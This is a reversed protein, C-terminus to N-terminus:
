PNVCIAYVTFSEATTGTNEVTAGWGAQGANGTGSGDSPYSENVFQDTGSTHVGGGVVKTGAGCPVDGFNVGDPVGYMGAAPNAFTTAPYSLGLVAAPGQSGQPGVPGTAGQPGSPGQPGTAGTPGQPGIPGATGPRGAANWTVLREASRCRAQGQVVRLAGNARSACARITGASGTLGTAYAAGSIVGVTAITAIAIKWRM